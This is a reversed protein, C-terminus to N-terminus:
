HIYTHTNLIWFDIDESIGVKPKVMLCLVATCVLCANDRRHKWDMSSVKYLNMDLFDGIRHRELKRINEDAVTFYYNIVHKELYQM